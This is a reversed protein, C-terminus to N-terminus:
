KTPSTQWSDLASGMDVRGGKVHRDITM